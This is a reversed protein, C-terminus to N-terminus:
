ASAKLKGRQRPSLKTYRPGPRAEVPEVRFQLGLAGLVRNLTDFEPNGDASLTRYLAERSLGTAEAIHSMGKARAAVGIAYTVLKLDGEVLADTVFAAIAEESGLFEAEDFPLTKKKAAM